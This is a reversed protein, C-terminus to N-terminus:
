EGVQVMIPSALDVLVNTVHGDGFDREDGVGVVVLLSCVLNASNNITLLRKSSRGAGLVDRTSGWNSGWNIMGGRDCRIDSHCGASSRGLFRGGAARSRVENIRKGFLFELFLKKILLTAEAEMWISDLRRAGGLSWSRRGNGLGGGSGRRDGSHNMSGRNWRCRIERRTRMCRTRMMGSTNGTRSHRSRSSRGKRQNRWSRRSKHSRRSLRSRLPTRSLQNLRRQRSMRSRGLLPSM